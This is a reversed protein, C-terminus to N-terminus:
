SGQGILLNAVRRGAGLQAFTTTSEGAKLTELPMGAGTVETSVLEALGSADMTASLPSRTRDGCGATEARELKAALGFPKASYYGSIGAVPVPLRFLERMRGGLEILRMQM